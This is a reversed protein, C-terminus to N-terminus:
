NRLTDFIKVLDEELLAHGEKHFFAHLHDSLGMEDYLEQALEYCEWMAPANVWDEGMWAAVVFYYRDPAAALVPLMYQEVEIDQYSAYQLFRDNFWGQEAESQLCSLPENQGYVYDKPGGCHTLDYSQGESQYKWLALGGAGSCVPIVM